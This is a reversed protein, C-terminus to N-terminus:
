RKTTGEDDNTPTYRFVTIEEVAVLQSRQNRYRTEATMFAGDGIRLKKRTFRLLRVEGSLIDGLYVPELYRTVCDTAFLADGPAPIKRLAFRPLLLPDESQPRPDGPSWYAPLVWTIVMTAPSVVGDYGARRATAEDYHIPADWGLVELRRRIDSINVADAGTFSVLVQGVCDETDEWTGRTVDRVTSV